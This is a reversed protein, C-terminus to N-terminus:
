SASRLCRSSAEKHNVGTVTESLLNKWAEGVHDSGNAPGGM